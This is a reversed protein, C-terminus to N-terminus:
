FDFRVASIALTSLCAGVLHSDRGAVVAWYAFGCRSGAESYACIASSPSVRIIRVTSLRTILAENSLVRTSDGRGRAVDAVGAGKIEDLARDPTVLTWAPLPEVVIAVAADSTGVSGERVWPAGGASVALM